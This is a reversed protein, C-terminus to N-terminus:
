LWANHWGYNRSGGGWICIHGDRQGGWVSAAVTSVGRTMALATIKQRQKGTLLKVRFTHILIWSTESLNFFSYHLLTICIMSSPPLWHCYCHVNKIIRWCTSRPRIVNDTHRSDTSEFNVLPPLLWTRNLGKFGVTAM